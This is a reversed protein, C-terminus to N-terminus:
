KTAIVIGSMEGGCDANVTNFPIRILGYPKGTTCPVGTIGDVQTTQTINRLGNTVNDVDAIYSSISGTYLTKDAKYLKCSFAWGAQVNAAVPDKGNDNMWVVIIATQGERVHTFSEVNAGSTSGGSNAAVGTAFLMEFDDVIDDITVWASTLIDTADNPNIFDLRVVAKDDVNDNSIILKQGSLMSNDTVEVDNVYWKPTFSSSSDGGFLTGKLRLPLMGEGVLFGGGYQNEVVESEIVGVYGKSTLQSMTADASVEVDITTSALMVGGKFTIVDVDTNSGNALNDIIKIGPKEANGSGYNKLFFKNAFGANTNRNDTGWTIKTGNYYWDTYSFASAALAQGNKSAEVWLEPGPYNAYNTGSGTWSPMCQGSEPDYAQFLAQNRRITGNVTVGDNVAVISFRSSVNSM